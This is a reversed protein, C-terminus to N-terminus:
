RELDERGLQFRKNKNFITSRLFDEDLTRLLGYEDTEKGLLVLPSDLCEVEFQVAM